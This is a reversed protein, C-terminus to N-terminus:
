STVEKFLTELNKHQANLSLIKLSNHQAFDFIKSRKDEKSEFTLSWTNESNNKLSIIDSLQKFFQEEIKRDFTVEIIQQNNQKLESLKKDVLIAGKKIIIVRDCVAEVEQMIHTSFLVTKERGLEKILERIEAIQNPDLGTTPEDLILVKPNHLIAAALGVRQQYGKSLENIKKHAEETLGVKEICTEIESKNVKFISAQFQLYERVYMDTYLPNHEPLYGIIKQAAIPNKLVDIEDVFVEGSNPKIFGTLIKMMTSKGAGNPGLFGIIQGKDASFSVENLAKQTKYTKSVAIVKISM